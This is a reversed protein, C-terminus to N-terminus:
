PAVGLDRLLNAVAQTEMDLRCQRTYTCMHPTLLANDLDLLEGQYPERWFADFWAGALKGSRLAAALAAEDVLEGRASNLLFAGDRMSAIEAGGLLTQEGSAHLSVAEAQRLGEGLEVKIEGDRLASADVHPDCVLVVAGFARLLRGVRRGIRGYGVLLVKTGGLGLGITKPWEGAHMRANAAPLGRLLALLAAMTM